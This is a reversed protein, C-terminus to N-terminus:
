PCGLSDIHVARGNPSVVLLQKEGAYLLGEDLKAGGASLWADEAPVRTWTGQAAGATAALRYVGERTLAFVQSCLQAYDSARVASAPLPPAIQARSPLGYVRGDGMGVRAASGDAFVKIPDGEPLFVEDARWVASSRAEFHFLRSAAVLYGQLYSPAAMAGPPLAALSTITGRSLPVLRIVAEPLLGVSTLDTIEVRQPGVAYLADGSSVLAVETGDGRTALAARRPAPLGVPFRGYFGSPVPLVNGGFDILFPPLQKEAILEMVAWRPRGQVGSLIPFQADGKDAAVLQGGASAVFSTEKLVKVSSVAGVGAAVSPLRFIWDASSAGVVAEPLRDLFLALDSDFEGRNWYVHGLANVGAYRRPNAMALRQTRHLWPTLSPDLATSDGPNDSDYELIRQTEGQAGCRLHLRLFYGSGGNGARHEVAHIGSAETENCQKRDGLTYGTIFTNKTMSSVPPAPCSPSTYVMQRLVHIVIAGNPDATTAILTDGNPTQQLRIVDRKPEGAPEDCSLDGLSTPGFPDTMTGSGFPLVAGQQYGAVYLGRSTGAYIFGDRADGIFMLDFLNAVGGDAGKISRPATPAGGNVNVLSLQTDNFAFLLPPATATSLRLQTPVFGFYNDACTGSLGAGLSWDYTCLAGSALLAYSKLGSEALAVAPAPLSIASLDQLTSTGPPYDLRGGSCVGGGDPFGADPVLVRAYKSLVLKTLKTGQTWSFAVGGSAVDGCKDLVDFDDSVALTDPMAELAAPGVRVPQYQAGAPTPQLADLTADVCRGGPGCRWSAGVCDSDQACLYEAAATKSHCAGELGCTWGSPCQLEDSGADRSCPYPREAELNVCARCGTLALLALLSLATRSM